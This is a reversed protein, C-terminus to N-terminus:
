RVTWCSPRGGYRQVPPEPCTYVARPRRLAWLHLRVQVILEPQQGALNKRCGMLIQCGAEIRYAWGGSLM